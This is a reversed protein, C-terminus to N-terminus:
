RSLRQEAGCVRCYRWREGGVRSSPHPSWLHLGFICRLPRSWLSTLNITDM